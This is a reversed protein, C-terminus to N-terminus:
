ARDARSRREVLQPRARYAAEPHTPPSCGSPPSCTTTTSWSGRAGPAAALRGRRGRRHQRGAGARDVGPRGHRLVGGSGVLLDVERLDKGTREVVGARPARRVVRSAAPTGACRWASRPRAAIAEDSTPARRRDDPLYAPTTAHPAPRPRRRARDLGAAPSRPSAGVLAHRPRGRRHPHGPTTAVVERALGPGRTRPTSSSWRTCTPPRAASTSSWSTAPGPTSTTSAAPWCSSAPSCSTPPPAACWRRSTPARRQPAQRRDRPGPVDRPDGARASEPALVGIRPVVNDALVHPVGAAPDRGVEDRADVNGAVVVPGPGAARRGPRPRAGLLVEANGGDTGGTLLVVDPPEHARARALATSPRVVRRPSSRSSRAAAPSRSGAAPRPPSWSRTASSPSGCGAAPARAPWCRPTRPARTRRPSRPWAPTTGTSSTPTSRPRPARRRRRDPGDALDVLSPRPSPRASTSASSRADRCDCSSRSAAAVLCVVVARGAPAAAPNAPLPAGPRPDRRRGPPLPPLRRRRRRRGAVLLLSASCSTSGTGRPPAAVAVSAAVLGIATREYALFTRENALTFRYDPSRSPGPEASPM